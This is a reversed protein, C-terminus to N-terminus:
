LDGLGMEKLGQPTPCGSALDWGREDYYDDLLGEMDAWTFETAGFYGRVPREEAGWPSRFWGEGICDDTRGLGARANLHRYLNWSREAAAQLEGPTAEIGTVYRYFEALGELSHFRQIYLRHCMGLCNFLSYWDEAHRTLRSVNFGDGSFIRGIAQEPIGMRRANGLFVELPRGPVYVGVGGCAYNPRGPHVFQAFSMTNLSDFRLDIFPACGKIHLLQGEAGKRRALRLAGDAIVDGLGERHATMHILRLQDDYSAPLEMGGVDADTLAGEARLSGLLGMTHHFNMMCVGSRNLADLRRVARNHNDLTTAGSSEREGMFHTMYTVMPSFDGERLRNREKDGMPCSPCALANRSQRHIGDWSQTDLGLSGLWGATMSYTGGELLTPRMHYGMIRELMRDTARVLGVRNAVQTGRSGKMAVVAKLNKSGMVAPLGGFGVTGLKDISTVSILVGNEGSPGIPIVSCPEYSARLEDVTEFTDRGWLHQAPCIAVDDDCIRLYVPQPARGTIVVHDYGSSKLMLPFHGGGAGTGIGGSLPLKTTVVLEASGPVITGSLPGAGIVIANEPSLPDVHPPIADYALRYNIGHGGIFARAVEADLPERRATGHGLDVFLVSGAYGPVAM